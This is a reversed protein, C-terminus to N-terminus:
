RALAFIYFVFNGLIVFFTFFLIQLLFHEEGPQVRGVGSGSQEGRKFPPVCSKCVEAHNCTLALYFQLNNEAILFNTDYLSPALVAILRM